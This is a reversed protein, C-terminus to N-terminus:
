ADEGIKSLFDDLRRALQDWGYRSEVLNRGEDGLKRRAPEDDLLDLIEEAIKEPSDALRVNVGDAVELGEAGVSTSVVAKKMALAELIKLRSGGGIRLPVVYVAAERIFPRVDEVMGTVHVGRRGDLARTQPSPNRGVFSVEIDDRKRHLLPLVDDVFFKVADQNPRWDMSGTFVLRSTSEGATGASFYDLDVGNDIVAVPLNPNFSRITKAERETVATAGDVNRFANREFRDVRRAQGAIYWRRLSGPENLQYRRWITAEINHAVIVRKIDTLHEVFRAYPSWECVIIDPPEEAVARDVARQFLQSYHSSVIYPQPSFLGALLRLYFIIGSKKPVQPPVAIPNLNSQRFHQYSESDPDGYALYRVRHRRALRSILNYSRIRKGSNLPYPFEEDLILLNM